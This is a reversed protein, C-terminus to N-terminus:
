DADDMVELRYGTGYISQIRWQEVHQARLKARLRSVHMDVTRTEVSANRGWVDTLLQNRLVVQGARQALYWAIAFEKEGCEIATVGFRLSQAVSNLKLGGVTVTTGVQAQPHHRRLVARVRALLSPKSLPKVLYDDAGADLMRVIDDENDHVTQFIVPLKEHARKVRHLLQDGQIDPLDWDLLLLQVTQAELASLLTRGSDLAHVEFGNSTLWFTLLTRQSHDDEVVVIRPVKSTM